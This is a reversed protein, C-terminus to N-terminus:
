SKRSGWVWFCPFGHLSTYYDCDNQDLIDAVRLANSMLIPWKVFFWWFNLQNKTFHCMKFYLASRTVSMKSWFLQLKWSGWVRFCPFGHLSTYYDPFFSKKFLDLAMFVDVSIELFLLLTLLGTWFVKKRNRYRGALNGISELTPFGFIM